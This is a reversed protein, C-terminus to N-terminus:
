RQIDLMTQQLRPDHMHRQMALDLIKEEIKYKKFINTRIKEDEIRNKQTCRQKFEETNSNGLKVEIEKMTRNHSERLQSGFERFLEIIKEITFHEPIKALQEETLTIEDGRLAAEIKRIKSRYEMIENDNYLDGALRCSEDTIKNRKFSQEIAKKVASSYRKNLKEMIKENPENHSRLNEEEYALDKITDEM